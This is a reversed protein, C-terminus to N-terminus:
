QSPFTPAGISKVDSHSSPCCCGPAWVSKWCGNLNCHCSGRFPTIAGNRCRCWLYRSATMAATGDPSIRDSCRLTRRLTCRTTCNNGTVSRTKSEENMVLRTLRLPWSMLSWGNIEPHDQRAIVAAQAVQPHETLVTEIEGPEIRYGRIKVQDDARGVFELDGDPRWRVLDGTRYLRTGAPGYPDAVFRGATLGPQHLYGRALGAGAIYLEGVGGPPTLRLAADLVYARTNAMPRGIPVTGNLRSPPRIAHYTAFTTTETPGYVHAVVTEPCADLVRQIAPPSVMEGGTLVQRTGAFCEPRQEAMLNFLATTLFVSTVQHRTIARELTRIDLEPPAIVAQGGNLLPVWLEFTSADFASPSHLLVRQHDGGQWCPDLALEAVDRHTIAIGKPQGTSGSTYMVYALQEPDCAIGPDDPNQTTISPDADVILVQVSRPFQQIQTARDTLLVSARTEEMILNMRSAPCGSDLPVYTGGTKVVALISVILDVSRGLLVVVATEQGVGQAILAHALQNAKTNLQAYSLTVDGFVVAVAEPTAHVQIEFLTPLSARPIPHATNNWDVLLRHREQTTLIDIDSTPGSPDADAIAELLSLFRQQHDALDKQSCAEPHAQWDIQLGLGDRGDIAIISLDGVSGFSIIHAAGRHGAFRLDHDRHIINVIPLFNTGINGRLGLDRHLDEGRYRQHKLIERVKQAVQGIVDSLSMDPLVPLRLPLVNALMGPARTLVSGQRATVGLSIIVDQAGTLRHVYIATAAILIVSWPVRERRAAFRLKDVLSLSLLTSQHLSNELTKSSRSTFSAPEPRDAFNRIWYDRDQVFQESTRYSSESDVLQRLSSFVNQGYDCGRVLATYVEAVRREIFSGISFGDVVSHHYSQYWLFREPRLKILAFSFLPGHALNMPRSVDAAMWEYAAARPDPEETVDLVPMLWDSRPAVVQRPGDRGEVFVVHLSDIEGVVFRLATEFLAPDVPGYIEVYEGIKYVRNGAKLRQEALWIEYQATSLPLFNSDSGPL